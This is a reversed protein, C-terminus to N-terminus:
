IIEQDIETLAKMVETAARCRYGSAVGWYYSGLACDM